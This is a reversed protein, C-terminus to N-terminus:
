GFVVSAYGVTTDDPENPYISHIVEFSNTYELLVGRTAGLTKCAAITAAIAGAGCANAHDQVEPEVTEANMNLILDIMRRDNQATWGAGTKGRGGPSGFQGGHHTLDTSGVVVAQPFQRSIVQGIINGIDLAVPTSPVLIPVIKINADLAQLLPVQVELSHEHHHAGTNARFIGDANLLAGALAEDVQMEGLPTRWVGSEYIEGAQAKGGHDAGLLVFTRPSKKQWLAMFTTAALRGSYMWGAHPVLGGVLTEPLDSPLDVASILKQAHHLCSSPSSEYFSGDVVPLRINM